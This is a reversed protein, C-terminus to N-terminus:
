SHPPARITGTLALLRPVAVVHVPVSPTGTEALTSRLRDAKERTATVLTVEFARGTILPRLAPDADFTRLDAALTALIRDWRGVGGVDVRAFGITRATESREAYFTSTSGVPDFGPVVRGLEDPRLRERHAGTLRCFALLAFARTKAVESLPGSHRFSQEDSPCVEKAGHESLYFYSGHRDLPAEGLWGAAVLRRLFAVANANSKLRLSAVTRAAEPTTLRYRAVHRLALRLREPDPRDTM